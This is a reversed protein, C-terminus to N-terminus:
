GVITVTGGHASRASVATVSFSRDLSDTDNALLVSTSIQTGANENFTIQDTSDSGNAMADDRATRVDPAISIPISSSASLASGQPALDNIQVQLADTGSYGTAACYLVGRALAADLEALTGSITLSAGAHGDFTITGHDVSLTLQEISNGGDVDAV